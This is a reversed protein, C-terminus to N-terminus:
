RVLDAPNINRDHITRAQTELIETDTAPVPAEGPDIRTFHSGAQEGRIRLTEDFHKSSTVYAGVAHNYHPQFAQVGIQVTSYDRGVSRNLCAPCQEIFRSTSDFREGCVRCRYAYTTM